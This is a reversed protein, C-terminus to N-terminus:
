YSNNRYVPYGCMPATLPPKAPLCFESTVAGTELTEWITEM